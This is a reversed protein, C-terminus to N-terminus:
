GAPTSGSGDGAGPGAPSGPPNDRPDHADGEHLDDDEVEWERKKARWAMVIKAIAPDAIEVRTVLMRWLHSVHRVRRIDMTTIEHEAAVYARAAESIAAEKELTAIRARQEQYSDLLAILPHGGIRVPRDVKIAEAAVSRMMTLARDDM